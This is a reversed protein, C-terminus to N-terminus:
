GLYNELAQVEEVLSEVVRGRLRYATSLGIGHRDAIEKIDGGELSEKFVDIAMPSFRKSVNDLAKASIFNEWEEDAIQEVHSESVSDETNLYLEIAKDKQGQRGRMSRFYDIVRYRAIGALYSRFRGVQNLDLDGLRKWLKVFVDQTLDAAEDEPVRMRVIVAYVFNRYISFFEKWANEDHRRQVKQLLTIRTRYTEHTQRDMTRFVAYSSKPAATLNGPAGFALHLAQQAIMPSHGRYCSLLLGGTSPDRSRGNVPM